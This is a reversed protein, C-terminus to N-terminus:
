GNARFLINPPKLDRHIVGREHIADLARAIQSVVRLATISTMGEHIRTALTGGPLYEM